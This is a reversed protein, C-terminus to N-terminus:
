RQNEIDEQVSAVRPWEADSTLFRRRRSVARAERREIELERAVVDPAEKARRYEEVLFAPLPFGDRESM